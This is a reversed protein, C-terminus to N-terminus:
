ASRVVSTRKSGQSASSRKSGQRKATAERRGRRGRYVTQIKMAAATKEETEASEEERVPAPRGETSEASTVRESLDAEVLGQLGGFKKKPKAQEAESQEKDAQDDPESESGTQKVVAVEEVTQTAIDKHPLDTPSESDPVSLHKQVWRLLINLIAFQQVNQPQYTKDDSLNSSGGAMPCVFQCVAACGTTDCIPVTSIMCNESVPLDVEADYHRNSDLGSHSFCFPNMSKAVQGVVGELKERPARSVGGGRGVTLHATGEGGPSGRGTVLHLATEQALFLEQLGKHFAQLLQVKSRCPGFENFLQLLLDKRKTNQTAASSNECIQLVETSVRGLLRLFRIDLDPDFHPERLKNVAQLVVRVERSEKAKSDRFIPVCLVSSASGDPGADVEAHFREDDEADVINLSKQQLYCSAVLGQGRPDATKSKVLPLTITRTHEGERHSTWMCARVPDCVWIRAHACGLLATIETSFSEFAKLYDSLFVVREVAKLIPPLLRNRCAHAYFERALGAVCEDRIKDSFVRPGQLFTQVHAGQTQMLHSLFDIVAEQHKLDEAPLLFKYAVAEEGTLHREAFEVVTAEELESAAKVQEHAGLYVQTVENQLVRAKAEAWGKQRRVLHGSAALKANRQALTFCLQRLGSLDGQQGINGKLTGCLSLLESDLDKMQAALEDCKSRESNTKKGARLASVLQVCLDTNQQGLKLLRKRFPDEGSEAQGSGGLSLLNASLEKVQKSLEDSKRREELLDSSKTKDLNELTSNKLRLEDVEMRSQALDRKTREFLSRTQELEAAQHHLQKRLRIVEGKLTTATDPDSEDISVGTSRGILGSSRGSKSHKGTDLRKESGVSRAAQRCADSCSELPVGAMDTISRGLSTRGPSEDHKAKAQKAIEERARKGALSRADEAMQARRGTGSHKLETKGVLNGTSATDAQAASAPPTPSACEDGPTGDLPRLWGRSKQAKHKQIHRPPTTMSLLGGGKRMGFM